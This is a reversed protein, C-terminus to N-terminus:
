KGSVHIQLEATAAEVLIKARAKLGEIKPANANYGKAEENLLDKKLEMLETLYKTAAKTNLYQFVQTALSLAPALFEVTM